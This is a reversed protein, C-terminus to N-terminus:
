RYVEEGLPLRVAVVTGDGESSEVDLEGGLLTIRERLAPMGFGTGDVRSKGLTDPDFGVGDDYVDMTVRTALYGLTVMATDARAHRVVNSLSAQAARLLAVEYEAPLPVPTGDLRLDCRLGSERETRECLRSLAEALGAEHLAPPRLERVFGRAEELNESATRRAEAIRSRATEEEPLASEAARLLLVVSSLGQAITDHIERALREREAAVGAEHQSTALQARTERLDAILDRRQQSEAHIAAYGWAVVVAFVAGLTPGLVMAVSFGDAHFLQTSIVLGTVVAVAVVAHTWRLLHLHLFFLPFAVWSFDPSAALLLAWLVTVGALWLLAVWRPYTRHPPLAGAAYLVALVVAGCLAVATLTGADRTEFLRTAAIGLLLYFGAHLAARLGRLVMSEAPDDGTM